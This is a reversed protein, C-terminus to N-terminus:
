SWQGLGDGATISLRHIAQQQWHTEDFHSDHAFICDIGGSLLQTQKGLLEEAIPIARDIETPTKTVIKTLNPIYDQCIKFLYRSGFGHAGSQSCELWTTVYFKLLITAVRMPLPLKAPKEQTPWM